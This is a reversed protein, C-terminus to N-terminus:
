LDAGSTNGAINNESDGMSNLRDYLDNKSERKKSSLKGSKTLKPEVGTVSSLNSPPKLLAAVNTAILNKSYDSLGDCMTPLGSVGKMMASFMGVMGIVDMGFINMMDLHELIDALEDTLPNGVSVYSNLTKEVLTHHAKINRISGSVKDLIDGDNLTMISGISKAISKTLEPYSTNSIDSNTWEYGGTQSKISKLADIFAVLDENQNTLLFETNMMKILSNTILMEMVLDNSYLITHAATIHSVVKFKNDQDKIVNDEDVLIFKAKSVNEIVHELYAAIDEKGKGKALMDLLAAIIFKVFKEMGIIAKVSVRKRANAGSANIVEKSIDKLTVGIETVIAGAQVAMETASENLVTLFNKSVQAKASLRASDDLIASIEKIARDGEKYVYGIAADGVSDQMTPIQKVATTLANRFRVLHNQISKGIKSDAEKIFTSDFRRAFEDADADFSQNTSNNRIRWMNLEEYLYSIFPDCYKEKVREFVADEQAQMKVKMKSSLLSLEAPNLIEIAKDLHKHMAKYSGENFYGISDDEPNLGTVVKNLLILAADIEKVAKEILGKLDGLRSMGKLARVLSILHAILQNIKDISKGEEKSLALAKRHPISILGFVTSPGLMFIALFKSLVMELAKSALSAAAGAISQMMTSAMGALAALIEAPLFNLIRKYKIAYVLELIKEFTKRIVLRVELITKYVGSATAIAVCIAEIASESKEILKLIKPKTEAVSHELVDDGDGSNAAEILAM